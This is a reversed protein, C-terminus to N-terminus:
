VESAGHFYQIVEEVENEYPIGELDCDGGNLIDKCLLYKYTQVFRM